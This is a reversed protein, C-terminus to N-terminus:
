QSRPKTSGPWTVTGRPGTFRYSAFHGDLLAGYVNDHVPVTKSVGNQATLTLERVGDPVLGHVIDQDGSRISTWTVTGESVAVETAVCNVGGGDLSSPSSSEALALCIYGSGPIVWVNGLETRARRALGPNLGCRGIGGGEYAPWRDEPLADGEVQPRRLIAFASSQADSISTIRPVGGIRDGM